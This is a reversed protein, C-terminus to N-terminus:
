RHEIIEARFRRQVRVLRVVLYVHRPDGSAYQGLLRTLVETPTINEQEQDLLIVGALAAAAGCM